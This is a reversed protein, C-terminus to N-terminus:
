KPTQVPEQAVVPAQRVLAIKARAYLEERDKLGNTWGNIKKTIALFNGADALENLGKSAWWWAASRCANETSELLEPKNVCDIGLAKSVAVYNTRGTVQILGRGKYKIGDGKVTNGLDKRGEYAAGSAIEAVYRLQGSEHGVQALFAAQRAESDIKFEAMAANLAPLFKEGRAKAYPMITLLQALTLQSTNM